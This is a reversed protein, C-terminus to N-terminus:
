RGRARRGADIAARLERAREEVRPADPKGAFLAGVVAVGAAGAVVCAAARGADIGGIAVVPLPTAGVVACLGELGIVPVGTKTTGAYVSGAGIYTAGQAFAERAAAPTRATRGIAAEPGLLSRARVVELDQDGLHVGRAKAVAAVDVRDNVLLPVGSDALVSQLRDALSLLDGAALEKGRLQVATAGGHAAALVLEALREEPITSLDAIALLSLDVDM